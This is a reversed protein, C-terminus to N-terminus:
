EIKIPHKAGKISVGGKANIEEAALTVAKLNEGGEISGLFTPVGIIIPDGPKLQSHAALPFILIALAIVGFSLFIGKRMVGDEKRFHIFLSALIEFISGNTLLYNKKM